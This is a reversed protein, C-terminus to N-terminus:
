ALIRQVFETNNQQQQVGLTKKFDMGYWYEICWDTDSGASGFVLGFRLMAHSVFFVGMGFIGQSEKKIANYEIMIMMMTVAYYYSMVSKISMSMYISMMMGATNKPVPACGFDLIFHLHNNMILM